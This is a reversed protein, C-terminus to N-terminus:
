LKSSREFSTNRISARVSRGSRSRTPWGTLTANPCGCHRGVSRCCRLDHDVNFPQRFGKIAALDHTVKRHPHLATFDVPEEPRVARALRRGNAHQAAQEDGILAVASAKAIVDPRLGVLDPSAYTIHGLM